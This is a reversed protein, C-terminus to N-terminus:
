VVEVTGQSGWDMLWEERVGGFCHSRDAPSISTLPRVSSAFIPPRPSWDHAGELSCLIHSDNWVLHFVRSDKTQLPFGRSNLPPKYWSFLNWTHLKTSKRTNWSKIRNYIPAYVLTRFSIPVCSHFAVTSSSQKRLVSQIRLNALPKQEMCYTCTHRHVSACAGSVKLLFAAWCRSKWIHLYLIFRISMSYMWSNM